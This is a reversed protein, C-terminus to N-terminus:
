RSRYGLGSLYLWAAAKANVFLAKISPLIKGAAEAITVFKLGGVFSL